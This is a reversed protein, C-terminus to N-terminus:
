RRFRTCCEGLWHSTLGGQLVLEMCDTLEQANASIGCLRVGEWWLAEPQCALSCCVASYQKRSFLM